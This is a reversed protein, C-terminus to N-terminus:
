LSSLTQECFCVHEYSLKATVRGGMLAHLFSVPYDDFSTTFEFALIHAFISVAAVCGQWHDFRM